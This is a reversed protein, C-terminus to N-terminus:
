VGAAHGNVARPRLSTSIMTATDTYPSRGDIFLRGFTDLRCLYTGSSDPRVAPAATSVARTFPCTYEHEACLAPHLLDWRGAAGVRLVHQTRAQRVLRRTETEAAQTPAPKEGSPTPEGQTKPPGTQKSTPQPEDGPAPARGDAGTAAGSGADVDLVKYGALRDLAAPAADPVQRLIYRLGMQALEEPTPADDEDFGCERRFAMGSLEMRDYALVANGSRDPRLALESMDYWVVWLSPDDDGSAAMRPQLYGVTLADCILEAAPAVHAKLAGEDIQWSSNGTFFVHGGDEALWTGNRTTPCWITGTYTTEEFSRGRPSFTLSRHSATVMHQTKTRPGGASRGETTHTYRSVSRGSLICALEFADCMRPDKQGFVLTGRLDHGDGLVSTRIFLELQAATLQQVFEARVVRGPAHETVVEAATANLLFRTIGGGDHRERWRPVDDRLRADEKLYRCAMTGSVGLRRGIEAASMRPHEARLRKAEARRAVSEPTAYRGGADFRECAPGFLATLARSIRACNGPNAPHSQHIVVRPTNRGPRIGLDGETYYWAVLEVLADAHKPETPLDACPAALVLYEHRQTDAGAAQAGRMLEATTTWARGRRHAQGSLIPWRHGLTTTSGHRRGAITVMPEDTVDWRNVKLLPQWETLGTAHDLTLVDEGETLRDHTKWGDRTMIRTGATTCWHNANGMGLMIESPIDMETALRKIVSDRREITKEDIKLTFDVHRIKDIAEAPGVIPIPVVASATGPNQISTAAIEVWEALLPNPEDQFEERVPFTIEDPFAIIGSSALRSLYEATIKRNILELERMTDRASRAPSDALHYYRAHPRWARVVHYDGALDRWTQGTNASDEDIVQYRGGAVRVEDVSRAQWQEVAGRTEGVLYGEGPVALQVTLRKMLQAQGAVGGRLRMMCEAAPGSSVIEPEDSGPRLRAARLRVRSLMNAQWSVGFNFEGLTDYYRWAEHQWKETNRLFQAEPGRPPAAAATLAAPPPPAAPVPRAPTRRRFADYWPM